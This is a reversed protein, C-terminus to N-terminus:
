QKDKKDYKFGHMFGDLKISCVDGAIIKNNYVIMNARINSTDSPYNSIAYTYRKARKGKYNELNFGQEKQLENYNNYVDDFKAPIAVEVIECAESSVKWGFSQLYDIRQQNTEVIYSPVARQNAQKALRANTFTVGVVVAILIITVLFVFKKKNAKLSVVFM